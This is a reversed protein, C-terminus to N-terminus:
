EYETTLLWGLCFFSSSAAASASAATLTNAHLSLRYGTEISGLVIVHESSTEESRGALAGVPPHYSQPSPLLGYLSVDIRLALFPKYLSPVELRVIFYRTKRSFIGSLQSYERAEQGPNM